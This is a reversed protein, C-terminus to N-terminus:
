GEDESVCRVRWIGVDVLGQGPETSRYFFKQGTIVVFEFGRVTAYDEDLLTLVVTAPDIIGLAAIKGTGDAYEIACPVQHTQRASRTPQVTPDFPVKSGDLNHGTATVTQPMFFTPRESATIPLGVQMALRLGARVAAADFGSIGPNAM